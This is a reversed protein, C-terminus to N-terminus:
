AGKPGPGSRAVDQAEQDAVLRIDDGTLDQAAVASQRVPAQASGSRLSALGGSPVNARNVTAPPRGPSGVARGAEETTARRAPGAATDARAAAVAACIRGGLGYRTVAPTPAPGPLDAAM